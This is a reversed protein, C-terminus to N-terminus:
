GPVECYNVGKGLIMYSGATPYLLERPHVGHAVLSVWWCTFILVSTCNAVYFVARPPAARYSAPSM